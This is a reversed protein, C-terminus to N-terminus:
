RTRRTELPTVIYTVPTGCVKLLIEGDYEGAPEVKCHPYDKQAQRVALETGSACSAAVALALILARQTM